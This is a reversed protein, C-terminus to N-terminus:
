TVYGTNSVEKQLWVIELVTFASKDFGKRRYSTIAQINKLGIVAAGTKSKKYM